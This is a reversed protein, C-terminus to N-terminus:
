TTTTHTLPREPVTRRPQEAATAAPLALPLPGAPAADVYLRGLFKLELWLLVLALPMMLWGALDHYVVRAIGGGATVYLVGTVTIRTVNAALAVPVASAFLVLRETWNRALVLAVATSLAFFTLLMGLGSCAEVVGLKVDGILIVNGESVASLGLTQLLYTSAVTAFRQLPRALAVEFQYPAPMMFVLFLVAPWAWRLAPRGGLLVCVGALAPLLSLADLWEHYFAAATLRLASALLLWPLGWWSLEFKVEPHQPRRVWLVVAAFVPVLFGHSYQPDNSWARALGALTPGYAWFLALALLTGLLLPRVCTPRRWAQWFDSLNNGGCARSM